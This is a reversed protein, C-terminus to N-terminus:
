FFVQEMGETIYIERSDIIIGCNNVAILISATRIMSVHKDKITQCDIIEVDSNMGKLEVEYNQYKKALEDEMFFSQKDFVSLPQTKDINEEWEKKM